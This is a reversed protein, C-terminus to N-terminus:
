VVSKRDEDLLDILGLVGNPVGLTKGATARVVDADVFLVSKDQEMAMSLALNISSFTKGDGQLASTVMVLNANEVAQSDRSFINRLLPRKITRYEEAIRSRAQHPILFGKEQLEALPIVLSPRNDQTEAVEAQVGDVNITDSSRESADIELETTSGEKVDAVFDQGQSLADLPTSAEDPAVSKQSPTSKKAAKLAKEITSM